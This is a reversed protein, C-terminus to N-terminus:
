GERAARTHDLRSSTEHDCRWPWQRSKLSLAPEGNMAREWVSVIGKKRTGLPWSSERRDSHWFWQGGERRLGYSSPLAHRIGVANCFLETRWGPITSSVLLSNPRLTRRKRNDGTETVWSGSRSRVRHRSRTGLRDSASRSLMLFVEHPDM